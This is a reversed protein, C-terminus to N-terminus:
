LGSATSVLESQLSGNTMNLLYMTTGGADQGVDFVVLKQSFSWQSGLIHAGSPACFLTQIGQGDMRVVRLESQGAVHATFLVWQGDASVQSEDVRTNATKNIEVKTGISTDYSTITGCTSGTS